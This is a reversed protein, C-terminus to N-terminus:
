SGSVRLIADVVADLPRTADIPTGAPLDERTRHVREVLAREDPSAGFEDAPRRGLRERLTAADIELVLVADFMHLFRASNRSGGCFFTVPVTRDVVLARVREVNWIHNGHAFGATPTGTVPDGQYALETDGNIARYGRRQLERCVSTKGATSVGEILINRIGVTPLRPLTVWGSATM